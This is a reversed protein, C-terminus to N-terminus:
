HMYETCINMYVIRRDLKVCVCVSHLSIHSVFILCEHGAAVRAYRGRGCPEVYCVVHICCPLAFSVGGGCCALWTKAGMPTCVVMGRHSSECFNKRPRVYVAYISKPFIGHMYIHKITHTHEKGSSQIPIIRANKSHGHQNETDARSFAQLMIYQAAAILSNVKSVMKTQLMTRNYSCCEAVYIERQLLWCRCCPRKDCLAVNQLMSNKSCFNVGAVHIQAVHISSYNMYLTCIFTYLCHQDSACHTTGCINYTM